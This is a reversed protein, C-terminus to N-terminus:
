RVQARELLQRRIAIRRRIGEFEDTVREGDFRGTGRAENRLQLMRQFIAEQEAEPLTTADRFSVGEPMAAPAVHYAMFYTLAERDAEAYAAAVEDISVDDDGLLLKAYGIDAQLIVSNLALRDVQSGFIFLSEPHRDVHNALWRAARNGVQVSREYFTIARRLLQEYEVSADLPLDATKLEFDRQDTGVLSRPEATKGTAEMELQRGMAAATFAWDRLARGPYVRISPVSFQLHRQGAFEQLVYARMFHEYALAHAGLGEPFPGLEDVFQIRSGDLYLEGDELSAPAERQPETLSALIRGEEDLLSEHREFRGVADPSAVALPEIDLTPAEPDDAMAQAVELDLVASREDADRTRTIRLARPSVGQKAVARRFDIERAASFTV